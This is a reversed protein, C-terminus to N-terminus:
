ANKANNREQTEMYETYEKMLKEQKHRYTVPYATWFICYDKREDLVVLYNIEQCWLLVRTKGGRRNKWVLLKDCHQKCYKLIYAPWAIREYRRLDPLRSEEETGSSIIHWFTGSKEKYLPHKKHAINKGEFSFKDNEFTEQYKCYVAEEYKAYDGDYQDLEIIEPINGCSMSAGRKADM